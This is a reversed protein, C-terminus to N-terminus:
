NISTGIIKLEEVAKKVTNDTASYAGTYLVRKIDYYGKAYRYEASGESQVKQQFKAMMLLALTDRSDSTSTITAEGQKLNQLFVDFQAPDAGQYGSEYMYTAYDSAAKVRKDSSTFYSDAMLQTAINPFDLEYARNNRIFNAVEDDYDDDITNQATSSTANNSESSTSNQQDNDQLTQKELQAREDQEQKLKEQEAKADNAKNQAEYNEKVLVDNYDLAQKRAEEITDAEYIEQIHEGDHLIAVYNTQTKIFDASIFDLEYPPNVVDGKYKMNLSDRENVYQTISLEKNIHKHIYSSKPYMTNLKVKEIYKKLAKNMEAEDGFISPKEITDSESNYPVALFSTDNKYLDIKIKTDEVSQTDYADIKKDDQLNKYDVLNLYTGRELIYNFTASSNVTPEKSKVTKDKSNNHLAVIIGLVIIIGSLLIPVLFLNQKNIKSLISKRPASHRGM